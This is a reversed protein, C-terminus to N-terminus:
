NPKSKSMQEKAYEFVRVWPQTVDVASRELYEGWQYLEHYHDDVQESTCLRTSEPFLKSRLLARCEISGKKKFLLCLKIDQCAYSIDLLQELENPNSIKSKLCEALREVAKERNGERLYAWALGIRTEVTANCKLKYHMAQDLDGKKAYTRVLIDYVGDRIRSISGPMSKYLTIVKDFHGLKELAVMISRYGHLPLMYRDHKMQSQISDYLAVIQEYDQLEELAHLYFGRDISRVGLQLKDMEQYVQVLKTWNKAHHCASLASSYSTRNPHLGAAKMRVIVGCAVKWHATRAVVMSFNSYTVKNMVLGETELTKLIDVASKYDVPNSQSCVKLLINYIVVDLKVNDKLLRNFVDWALSPNKTECALSMLNGSIIRSPIFGDKIIDQYVRLASDVDKQIRFQHMLDPYAHLLPTVGLSRSENLVQVAQDLRNELVLEKALRSATSPHLQSPDLQTQQFHDSLVPCNELSIKQISGTWIQRKRLWQKCCIM